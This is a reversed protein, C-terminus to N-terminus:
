GALGAVWGAISATIGAATLGLEGHIRNRPAHDLFQQPVGLDRAPV